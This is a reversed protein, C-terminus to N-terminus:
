DESRGIRIGGHSDGGIAIGGKGAAVAKGGPGAQAIAGDGQLRAEQHFGGAKRLLKEIEAALNPDAELIQALQVELVKQAGKDEPAAAVEKAVAVTSEKAFIKAKLKEWLTEAVGEGAAEAAKEAGAALLRRLIPALVQVAASAVLAVDLM